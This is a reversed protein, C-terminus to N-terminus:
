DRTFQRLDEAFLQADEENTFKVNVEKQRVRIERCRARAQIREGVSGFLGCFCLLCFLLKAIM